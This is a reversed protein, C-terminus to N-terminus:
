RTYFVCWCVRFTFGLKLLSQGTDRLTKKKGSRKVVENFDSDCLVTRSHRACCGAESPFNRKIFIYKVGESYSQKGDRNSATKRM